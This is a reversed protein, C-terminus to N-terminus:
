SEKSAANKTSKSVVVTRRRVVTTQSKTQSNSITPNDAAHNSAIVATAGKGSQSTSVQPKNKAVVTKKTPVKKIPVSNAQQQDGKTTIKVPIREKPVPAATSKKVVTGSNGVIANSNSNKSPTIRDRPQEM